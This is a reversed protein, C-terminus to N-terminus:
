VVLFYMESDLLLDFTKLNRKFVNKLDMKLIEEILEGLEANKIVNRPNLNMGMGEM